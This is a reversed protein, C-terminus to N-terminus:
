AASGAHDVRSTSAAVIPMPLENNAAADLGGSKPRGVYTLCGMPCREVCTALSADVLGESEYDIVPLNGKMTLVNNERTCAKCGICGVECVRRVDNGFDRNSCAVVLVRETKFPILGLIGRPCANVCAGCGTCKGYDVTALGRVIQLADFPCAAVCDGFGLCGYVCGQVGAVVNASACTPEGRYDVHGLRQNCDASCQVVVRYPSTPEVAVGMIEALAQSCEPGGPACLSIQAEGSAVAEAYNECGAYGCGGCNIGPLSALIREVRPDTEVHLARSAWGLLVSAVTALLLLTGAALSAAFLTM